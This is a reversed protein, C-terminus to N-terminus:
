AILCPLTKTIVRILDGDAAKDFAYGVIKKGTTSATVKSGAVVITVAAGRSIPGSAEMYLCNGSAFACEAYALKGFSSQKIDYLLFGLVEDTDASCEVVKPVGGKSDILKVAQGAILGGASSADIQVSVVNQGMRLDAQGKVISQIFQNQNLPTSM